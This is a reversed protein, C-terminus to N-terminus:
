KINLLLNSNEIINSIGVFITTKQSLIISSKKKLSKVLENQKINYTSHDKPGQLLTMTYQLLTFISGTIIWGLM